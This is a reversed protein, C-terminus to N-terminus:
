RKGNDKMMLMLYNMKVAGFPEAKLTAEVIPHAGSGPPGGPEAALSSLTLGELVDNGILAHTRGDGHMTDQTFLALM